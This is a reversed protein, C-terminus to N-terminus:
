QAGKDADSLETATGLLDDSQDPTPASEPTSARQDQRQAALASSKISSELTRIRRELSWKVSRNYIWM